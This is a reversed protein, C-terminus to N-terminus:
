MCYSALRSEIDNTTETQCLIRCIDATNDIM